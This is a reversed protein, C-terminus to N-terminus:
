KRSKINVLNKKIATKIDNEATDGELDFIHITNDNDKVVLETNQTGSKIAKKLTKAKDKNSAIELM